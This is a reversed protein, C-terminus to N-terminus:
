WCASNPESDLSYTKSIRSDLMLDGCVPDSHSKVKETGPIARLLVCQSLTKNPCPTASLEYYSTEPSSGSWWNFLAGPTDADFAYYTNHQTYYREQQLLTALLASRGEARRSNTIVELYRPYALTVLISAIVIGIVLETLSFGFQLKLNPSHRIM